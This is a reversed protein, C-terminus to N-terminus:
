LTAEIKARLKASAEPLIGFWVQFALRAQHILMGLGDVTPNGRARAAALLPTELPTYVIDAVIAEIPLRDLALDLPAQGTMGQSTANVLLGIDALALHREEWALATVGSGFDRALGEARAGSRNAIRIDRCGRELLGDVIARAGGGAGVVFAPRKDARWDPRAALVSQIFGWADTNTGALSGDQGVSITNTAGIRTATADLRDILGLAAIKHPITLNCGAFGLIPLARLAAGLNGVEVALPVYSGKLGHEEFWHNHLLPSRSHAIPWGMVGALKFRDSASMKFGEKPAGLDPTPASRALNKQQAPRAIRALIAGGIRV